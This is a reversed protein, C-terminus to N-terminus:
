PIKQTPGECSGRGCCCLNYGTSILRYEPRTGRVHFRLNGAKICLTHMPPDIEPVKFHTQVLHKAFIADNIAMRDINTKTAYVADFPISREKPGNPTGVVRTNILAVEDTTLGINRFKGLMKGWNPDGNFRHNNKLEMFVNVFDRWVVGNDENYLPIGGVPSLQAFDGCFVIPVGGFPQLPKDLIEKMEENLLEMDEISAFSIEDVVVLYTNRFEDLEDQVKRKLAFAKATTEGNISVAAAGTLATVVITRKDFVVHLAQCLKQAYLCVTRIVHSKGTGGAGSLFGIVTLQKHGTALKIKDRANSFRRRKSTSQKDTHFKCTEEACQESQKYLQNIFACTIIEFSKEQYVDDSFSMDAFQRVNELTGNVEMDITNGNKDIIRKVVKLALANLACTHLMENTTRMVIDRENESTETMIQEGPTEIVIVQESSSVNPCVVLNKGCMLSEHCRTLISQCQFHGDKDRFEYGSEM